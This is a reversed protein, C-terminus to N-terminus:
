ASAVAVLLQDPVDTADLLEQLRDYKEKTFWQIAISHREQEETTRQTALQRIEQRAELNIFTDM